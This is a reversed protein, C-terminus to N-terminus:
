WSKHHCSHKSIAGIFHILPVELCLHFTPPYDRFRLVNLSIYIIRPVM